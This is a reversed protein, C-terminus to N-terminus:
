PRLQFELRYNNLLSPLNGPELSHSTLEVQRKSIITALFNSTLLLVLHRGPCIGTGGSFPLLPWDERTRPKDWIEPAFRHAFELNRDDRHFFPAFILVTTGQPMVGHEFEVETTTERLIMPTTAWLRLSELVTGRLRQLLPAKEQSEQQIQERAEAMRDPHSALLALGRISAMGAPDFAFLWQPVQQEPVADDGKPVNNMFEAISGPEGKELAARIQRILEDRGETDEPRLFAFNGRARLRETLETLQKDNRYSDGLVVRRVVRFWADLYDPYTLTGGKSDALRLLEDAEEQVVPVFKEAMRHIPHGNDLVQENLQRRQTREEGHSILSTKPQFHKLAHRKLTEATAFPEPTEEIIRHVDDPDLVTAMNKGPVALMLPGRGYKESVAQMRKVARGEIGLREVAGVVKPRRIIPGKAIMPLEVDRLVQLTEWATAKPLPNQVSAPAPRSSM